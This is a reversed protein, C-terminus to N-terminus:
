VPGHVYAGVIAEQAAELRAQEAADRSRFLGLVAAGSGSMVAAVAGNQLLGEKCRRVLPHAALVAPEFDNIMLLHRPMGAGVSALRIARSGSGTLFMRTGEAPGGAREAERRRDFAKYAWPTSVALAPCVLLLWGDLRVEVPQMIEGLGTSRCPRNSLFFPVDAGVELALEALTEPALPEPAKRNLWLLLQAADASGGGLGMGQPVGKRLELALPPAFGSRGAFATYAKTLTNRAPDLGAAACRVVLGPRDSASLVLEDHPEDLPYFVSDLEHWGNPRVATILLNLNIKCGAILTETDM